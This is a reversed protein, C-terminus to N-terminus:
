LTWLTRSIFNGIQNVNLLLDILSYNEGEDIEWEEGDWDTPKWQLSTPDSSPWETAKDTETM